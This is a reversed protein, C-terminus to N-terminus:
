RAYSGGNKFRKTRHSGQWKAPQTPPLEGSEAKRIQEICPSLINLLRADAATMSQQETLRAHTIAIAYDIWNM